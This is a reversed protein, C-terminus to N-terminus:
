NQGGGYSWWLYGLSAASHMVDILRVYLPQANPTAQLLTLRCEWMLYM